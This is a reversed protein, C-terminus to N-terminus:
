RAVHTPQGGMGSGLRQVGRFSQVAAIFVAGLYFFFVGSSLEQNDQRSTMQHLQSSCLLVTTDVSAKAARGSCLEQALPLM